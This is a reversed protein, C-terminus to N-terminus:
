NDIGDYICVCPIENPPDLVFFDIAGDWRCAVICKEVELIYANVEDEDNLIDMWENYTDDPLTIHWEYSYPPIYGPGCSSFLLALFLLIFVTVTLKRM